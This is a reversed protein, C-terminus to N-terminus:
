SSFTAVAVPVIEISEIFKLTRNSGASSAAQDFRGSKQAELTNSTVPLIGVTLAVFFLNKM